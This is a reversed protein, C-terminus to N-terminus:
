FLKIIDNITVIIMLLFILIFGILHCTNEFKANVPSGKIKEILIFLVHGGDFAPFPLINILGVNISLYAIIYIIFEIAMGINYELAQGVVEYMGVPGSLASLSINGSILGWITYIMSDFIAGFKKFGYGLVNLFTKKEDNKIGIGFM